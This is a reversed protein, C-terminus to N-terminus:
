MRKSPIKLVTTAVTWRSPDHVNTPTTVMIHYTKWKEDLPGLLERLKQNYPEYFRELMRRTEPNMQKRYVGVRSKSTTQLEHHPLGVFSAVQDFAAQGGDKYLDKYERIFFFENLDVDSYERLWFKLQIEYLGRGIPSHASAHYREFAKDVETENAPSEWVRSSANGQVLRIFGARELKGFDDDIYSEFTKNEEKWKRIREWEMSYDSFARDVPDRLLVVLRTRPFVIRMQRAVKASFVLYMPTNDLAVVDTNNAFTPFASVVNAVAGERAKDVLLTSGDHYGRFKYTHFAFLSAAVSVISNSLCSNQISDCVRSQSIRVLWLLISLFPLGVHHVNGVKPSRYYFLVHRSRGHGLRQDSTTQFVSNNTDNNNKKPSPLGVLLLLIRRFM